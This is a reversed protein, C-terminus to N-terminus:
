DQSDPGRFHNDQELKSSLGPAVVAHTEVLKSLSTIGTKHIQIEFITKDQELESGLGPAVARDIDVLISLYTIRTKHIQIVVIPTKSWNAALAQRWRRM